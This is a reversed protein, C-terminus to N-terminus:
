LSRCHSIFRSQVRPSDPNEQRLHELVENPTPLLTRVFHQAAELQIPRFGNVHFDQHLMKRSDRWAYNYCMLM